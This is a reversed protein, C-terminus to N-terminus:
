SASRQFSGLAVVNRKAGPSMTVTSHTAGLEDYFRELREVATGWGYREVARSRAVRGLREVLAPETLLRAVQTAFSEPDDALLAHREHEVDLGEAGLTTSVIAKGMAMAEVIKFRTGGGIRLPVVVATARDLYPRPDDVFGLIEVDSCACARISDPPSQGMVQLRVGPCKERIRPFTEELFHHIGDINPHYNMAGFFLLTRPEREVHAPAFHELDVANPVVATRVGSVDKQLVREDAVSTLAVGDFRRWAEHEEARLKKFNVTAYLKRDFSQAAEATRELLSYEINHEDLVFVPRRPATHAFRYVGMQSFEVQVVDYDGTRVLQEFRAQFPAHHMQLHEYSRRSALSRLQLFRKHRVSMGLLDREVTVVRACYEKTQRVQERVEPGSGVLSLLSVEHRTALGRMLGDMRRQAGFGPPSSLYPTVFLIKM